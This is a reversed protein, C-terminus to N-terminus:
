EDSSQWNKVMDLHVKAGSHTAHLELVTNFLGTVEALKALGPYGLGQMFYCHIRNRLDLDDDFILLNPLSVVFYDLKIKDAAHITGYGVLKDFIKNATETNGLAKHAM